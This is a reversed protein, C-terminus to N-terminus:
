KSKGGGGKGGGGEGKDASKEAAKDAGKAAKDAAREAQDESKDVAKAAKGAAKEQQDEIKDQARALAKQDKEVAKAFEKSAKDVDKVVGHIKVGDAHAIQGWGLGQQRQGIVQAEAAALPMGTKKSVAIALRDAVLLEGWGLGTQSHQATISAASFATCKCDKNLDRALDAAVQQAGVPTAAAADVRAEDKALKADPESGWAPSTWVGLTIALAAAMISRHTRM